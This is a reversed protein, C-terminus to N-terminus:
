RAATVDTSRLNRTPTYASAAQAPTVQRTAADMAATRQASERTRDADQVNKKLNREIGKVISQVLKKGVGRAMHDSMQQDYLGGFAEGGRGGSFLEDKFPSNRVQKMLTGYFSTAVWKEVQETIAEHKSQQSTDKATSVGSQFLNTAPPRTMLKELPNTTV